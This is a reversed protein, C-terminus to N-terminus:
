EEQYLDKYEGPVVNRGWEAFSIGEGQVIGLKDDSYYTFKKSFKMSFDRRECITHWKKYEYFDPQKAKYVENMYKVMACLLRTKFEEPFYDLQKDIIIGQDLEAFHVKKPLLIGARSLENEPLNELRLEVAAGMPDVMSFGLVIEVSEWDVQQVYQLTREEWEETHEFKVQELEQASRKQEESKMRDSKLECFRKLFLIEPSVQQWMNGDWWALFKKIVENCQKKFALEQITIIYSNEEKDLEVAICSSQIDFPIRLSYNKIRTTLDIYDKLELGTGEAILEAQKGLMAVDTSPRVPSNGLSHGSSGFEELSGRITITDTEKIGILNLLYRDMWRISQAAVRQQSEQLHSGFSTANNYARNAEVRNVMSEGSLIRKMQIQFDAGPGNIEMRNM